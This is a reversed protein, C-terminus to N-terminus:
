HSRTSSKSHPAADKVLFPVSSAHPFGAPSPQCGESARSCSVKIDGWLMSGWSKGDYRSTHRSGTGSLGYQRGERRVTGSNKLMWWGQGGWQHRLADKWLAAPCSSHAQTTVSWLTASLGMHLWLSLLKLVVQSKENLIRSRFVAHMQMNVRLGLSQM